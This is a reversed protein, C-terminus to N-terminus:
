WGNILADKLEERSVVSTGLKAIGLGASLNALLCASYLDMGCALSVGLTSIVTDGAGTVDYVERAQTPIHHVDGSNTILSMGREGRTILIAKAELEKLLLRGAREVEEDEEVEFRVAQGAEIHNPTILEAGRYCHLNSIKPDVIIWKGYKHALPFLGSTLEISVVGKAYDSILVLDVESIFDQLAKIILNRSKESIPKRVERDFRVVQQSHAIIRTKVTTPRGPEVVVGEINVGKELLENLLREGVEDDGVVGALYIKAGLAILNNVVNAAGGLMATEREVEVVPVPAEPSIRRVRGWIFIDRMLDGVVCIKTQDFRELWPVLKELAPDKKRGTM